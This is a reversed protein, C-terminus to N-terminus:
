SGSCILQWQLNAQPVEREADTGAARILLQPAALDINGSLRLWRSPSEYVVQLKRLAVREQAPLSILLSQNERQPKTPQDDLYVSWLKSEEPLRIELLTAKTLLDYRAISQSRGAAAVKTVLEARQILAPPLPYAERAAIAAQLQVPVTVYGFSGIVRRGLPYEAGSLEGIDVERLNPEATLRIDLEAGGEVAVLGSQFEVGEAQALPLSYNTQAQQAVHQTFDIALRVQGLQREALQVTWRRRQSDNTTTFEKVVTNNLGRISLETPTSIPLSFAIQRARAERVDFDLEYHAILSDRELRLFSYVQAAISPTTRDVVLGLGFDRGGYRYALATPINELGFAAKENDLLPTLSTLTEPRVVLDDITQAAVAGNDSTAGEVFIRPFEITQTTWESLWGAPTKVAQYNVTQTQGVEIGKPLRVTVRTAGTDDLYREVPLSSGDPSTVQTVQWGAPTSFAFAFLLEAQPTLAFGGQLTLGQDGIVLLSNGAIKLGAPQRMLKAALSYEGAPAYYAAVQRVAPAGPEAKLISAPIAAALAASDIPVLDTTAISQPQLRDEVVLGVVAVQGVTDLPELRPFTWDTLQTLWDASATPSRNATLHLVVQESTPERLTGEFTSRGGAATTVEWRALLVSEAKTVEFGAPISLRLRDVAGHLVRYSITAHIREYGQTVEDVIVSRSVLVRREQLLRNNMSLALSMEGRQSLLELRTRNATGDFDRSVVAAGAKVEVNGAATLILRTASSAPLKIQLTQQAAATQVPATLKLELKHLGKGQVILNSPGQGDRSLPAQKDDLTASRIGVGGLELPLAFLGDELVDITLRGTILARGEELQGDYEAAVIAVKHPAPTHPKVKAQEILAEYEERTLFIRNKDSNLIVNLDEYPVFIERIPSNDTTQASSEAVGLFVAFILGTFFRVISRVM